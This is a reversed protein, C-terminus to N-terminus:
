EYTDIVSKLTNLRFAEKWGKHSDLNSEEVWELEFGDPYHERYKDHKWDSHLGMDHMSFYKDSSLHSALCVGDEALAYGMVDGGVSSGSVRGSGTGLAVCYLYIKGM